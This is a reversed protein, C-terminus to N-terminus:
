TRTFGTVFVAELFSGCTVPFGRLQSLPLEEGDEEEGKPGQAGVQEDARNDGTERCPHQRDSLSHRGQPDWEHRSRCVSAPTGAREEFDAIGGRIGSHQETDRRQAQTNSLDQELYRKRQRQGAEEQLGRHGDRTLPRARKEVEQGRIANTSEWNCHTRSLGVLAREM